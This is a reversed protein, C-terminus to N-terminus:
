SILNTFDNETIIPINLEIAKNKKSIGMKDGAVIFSINSSVSSKIEGGNIEIINILQQRSYSKFIGSVVYM